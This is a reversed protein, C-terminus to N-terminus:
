KNVFEDFQLKLEVAMFYSAFIKDNKTVSKMMIAYGKKKLDFIRASLRFCGYLELADLPTLHKGSELHSLINEEQTKM